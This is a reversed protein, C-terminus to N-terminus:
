TQNMLGLLGIKQFLRVNMIVLLHTNKGGKADGGGITVGMELGTKTLTFDGELM